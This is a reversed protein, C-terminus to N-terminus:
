AISRAASKAKVPVAGVSGGIQKELLLRCVLYQGSQLESTQEESRRTVVEVNKLSPYGCGPCGGHGTRKRLVALERRLRNTTMRSRFLTTYAFLASRQPRRIM